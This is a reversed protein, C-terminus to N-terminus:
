RGNVNFCQSGIAVDYGAHTSGDVVTMFISFSTSVKASSLISRNSSVNAM